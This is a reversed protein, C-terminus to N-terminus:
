IIAYHLNAQEAHKAFPNIYTKSQLNQQPHDEVSNRGWKMKTVWEILLLDLM